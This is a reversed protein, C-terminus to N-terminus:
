QVRKRIFLPIFGFLYWGDCYWTVREAYDKLRGKEAWTRYVLM